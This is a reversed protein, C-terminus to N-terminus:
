NEEPDAKGAAETDAPTQEEDCLVEKKEEPMLMFATMGLISAAVLYTDALNFNPWHYSGIMVLIWDRVAYVPEGPLHPPYFDGWVLHHMGLRDYLNGLVGAAAFGLILTWFRSKALGSWFLIGIIFALAIFSSVAFVPVFGQGMGFLAGENLSTQIGLVNPILWFTQKEGPMGLFHFSWTKTALDLWLAPVAALFFLLARRILISNQKM